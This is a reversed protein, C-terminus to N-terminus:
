GHKPFAFTVLMVDVAVVKVLLEVDLVELLLVVVVLEVVVVDTSGFAKTKRRSSIPGLAVLM